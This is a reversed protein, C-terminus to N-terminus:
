PRVAPEESTAPSAGRSSYLATTANTPESAVDPGVAAPAPEASTQGTPQRALARERRWGALIEVAVAFVTLVGVGAMSWWFFREIMVGALMLACAAIAYLWLWM